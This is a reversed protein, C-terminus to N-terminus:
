SANADYRILRFEPFQQSPKDASGYTFDVALAVARCLDEHNGVQWDGNNPDMFRCKSDTKQLGIVHGQNDSGKLELRYFGNQTTAARLTDVLGQYTPMKAYGFTETAASIGGAPHVAVPTLGAGRDKLEQAVLPNIEGSLDSLQSHIEKMRAIAKPIEEKPLDKAGSQIRTAEQHLADRRQRCADAQMRSASMARQGDFVPSLDGKMMEQFAKAGAAPNANAETGLRIWERVFGSCAGDRFEANDIIRPDSGQAVQTLLKASAVSKEPSYGLMTQLNETGQALKSPGNGKYVSGRRALNVVTSAHADKLEQATAGKVAADNKPEGKAFKDAPPAKAPPPAAPAQPAPGQQPGTTERAAQGQKTSHVSSSSHPGKIQM